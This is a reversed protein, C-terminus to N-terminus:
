ASGCVAVMYLALLARAMGDGAELTRVALNVAGTALNAVAFVPFMAASVRAGLVCGPPRSSYLDVAAVALLLLANHACCWLVYPLDTARRSPGGLAARAALAAAWLLAAATALRALALRWHLLAAAAKRPAPPQWLTRRAVDEGVFLVAAFGPLGCIGERNQSLFPLGERPGDDMLWAALGSGSWSLAAQYSLLLALALPARLPPALAAHAAAAAIRVCLITAFFNWHVGYESVHEQYGLAKVSVLRALGLAVLPWSSTLARPLAALLRRPRRLQSSGGGGAAGNGVADDSVAPPRGLVVGSAFMVAGTGLDMLGTGYTETKAFRRPFVQSAAM